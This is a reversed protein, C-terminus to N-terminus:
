GESLRGSSSPTLEGGTSDQALTWQGRYPCEAWHEKCVEVVEDQQLVDYFAKWGRHWGTSFKQANCIMCDPERILINHGAWEYEYYSLPETSVLFFYVKYGLSLAM